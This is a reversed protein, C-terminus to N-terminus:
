LLEKYVTLLRAEQSSWNYRDLVAERGNEGMRKAEAPHQVIWQIAKAIERPEMPNVCLGCKNREIIDRWLPFNSAVVPLGASMYEFLKNPQANVHNPEPHFLVLGAMSKALIESVENRNLYGPAHVRTWGPMSVIKKKDQLSINGALYLTADTMNIARIMEFLGRGPWIGGVYCVAPKKKSWEVPAQCLEDTEPYNNVDITKCNLRLFRDRIFPTAAIVYNMRRSAINEVQEVMNSLVNRVVPSVWNKTLIDRPVDEHVDYIVKKGLLRLFLGVWLLEPDHFHYLAAKQRCAIVLARSSLAFMRHLRNKSKPLSKITISMVDDDRDHSAILTVRYGSRVLSSCEKRFIRGDLASHVTTIHCITDPITNAM